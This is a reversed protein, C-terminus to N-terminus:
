ELSPLRSGDDALERCSARDVALHETGPRQRQVSRGLASNITRSAQEHHPVGIPFGNAVVLATMPVALCRLTHILSISGGCASCDNSMVVMSFSRECELAAFWVVTVVAAAAFAAATWGYCCYGRHSSYGRADNAGGGSWVRGVRQTVCSTVGVREGVRFFVACSKSTTQTWLVPAATPFINKRSALSPWCSLLVSTQIIIVGAGGM